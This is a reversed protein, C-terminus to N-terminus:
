ELKKNEKQEVEEEKLYAFSALDSDFYVEFMHSCENEFSKINNYAENTIDHDHGYLNQMKFAINLLQLRKNNLFDIETM